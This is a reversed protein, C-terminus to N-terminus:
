KREPTRLGWKGYDISEVYPGQPVELNGSTHPATPESIAITRDCTNMFARGFWPAFCLLPFLSVGALGVKTRDRPRFALSVIKEAARTTEYLPPMPGVEHGTFNASRLYIPTNIVPPALICVHIDPYESVEGRLTESLGVIAFKSAVYAGVFPAGAYGWGSANNILIGRKQQMFHPLVARMGHVYGFLNTEVVRRFADSPTEQLSGFMMVAANNVWIDIGGFREVAADALAQVASENAVDVPIALAEAGLAACSNAADNLPEPNRAALVIRAGRKAFAHSAALGIGSSAGTIVVVKGELAKSM